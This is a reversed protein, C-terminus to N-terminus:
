RVLEGYLTEYASTMASATFHELAYSRASSALRQRLELDGLLRRLAEALAAPDEPPVLIGTRDPVVCERLGGVDTALVPVGALMAELVVLPLGEVRSPLVLADAQALQRVVDRQWPLFTVRRGLGLRAAMETLAEREPGDGIIRATVDPLDVLAALLIDIGKQRNLRGVVVVIPPADTSRPPVAEVETVGNHITRISGVPLAAEAEVARATADSVAVHAGLRGSLHRKLWRRFRSSSALPLHEVAVARVGPTVTAAVLAPTCAYPTRLNIQAIDPRCGVVLRLHSTLSRPDLAARRRLVNTRAAPRGAAITSVIQEDLGAVTVVVDARITAVLTALCHEAGGYESADTYVLLRM